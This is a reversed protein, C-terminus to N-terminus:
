YGAGACCAPLLGEDASRQACRRGAKNAALDRRSADGPGFADAIEKAHGAVFADASGCRIAIAGAALCHKRIDPLGDLALSDVTRQMCSSEPARPNASCAGLLLSCLLLVVIMGRGALWARADAADEEFWRRASGLRFTYGWADMDALMRERGMGPISDALLIQLYCVANEEDFGGGADTDLLRRREADMCIFHAAEHLASHVPTDPRLYITEGVLGAEPAGWYSGPIEEAAGLLTIRLGHGELVERLADVGLEAVTAVTAPNM